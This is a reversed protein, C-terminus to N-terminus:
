SRTLCRYYLKKAFITLGNIALTVRMYFGTLRNTCCILQSTETHPCCQCNIPSNALIHKNPDYIDSLTRIVGGGVSM